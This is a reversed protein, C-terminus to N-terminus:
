EAFVARLPIALGELVSAPADQDAAYKTWEYRGAKRVYAQVTKKEPDVIWYEPVGADLYLNLKVIMDKAASSPSVIEAIFDPMGKCCHKALKREDCVVVIDPQVVTEDKEDDDYFPRVDYPAAFVKCPKGELFNAIRVALAM